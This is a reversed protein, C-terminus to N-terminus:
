NFTISSKALKGTLVSKRIICYRIDCIKSILSGTHLYHLECTFYYSDYTASNSVRLNYHVNKYVEPGFHTLMMLWEKNPPSGPSFM